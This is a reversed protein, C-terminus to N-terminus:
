CFRLNRPWSNEGSSVMSTFPLFTTMIPPPSVPASQRPVACRWPAALMMWISIMGRGDSVRMSVLGHGCHAVINRVELAWSSPPSLSKLTVVFRKTPSSSPLRFSSSHERTSHTLSSSVPRKSIFSIGPLSNVISASATKRAIPKMCGCCSPRSSSRPTSYSGRPLTAASPVNFVLRSFTNAHPSICRPWDSTTCAIALPRRQARCISM